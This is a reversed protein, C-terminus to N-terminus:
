YLKMREHPKMLDQQIETGRRDPWGSGTIINMMEVTKLFVGALNEKSSDLGVVSKHAV